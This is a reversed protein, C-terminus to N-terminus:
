NPGSPRSPKNLSKYAQVEHFELQIINIKGEVIGLIMMIDLKVLKM